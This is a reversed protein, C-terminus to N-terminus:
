YIDNVEQTIIEGGMSKWQAVFEDFYDLPKEGTIIQIFAGKQLSDLQSWVDGMSPTSDVIVEDVVENKADQTLNGALYHGYYGVIGNPITIDKKTNFQFASEIYDKDGSNFADYTPATGSKIYNNISEVFIPIRRYNNAIRGTGFPSTTRGLSNADKAAKFIAVDDPNNDYAGNIADFEVNMAKIAAEPNKAKASVCVAGGIGPDLPNNHVYKGDKNLPALVPVWEAGPNKAVMDAFIWPEWWGAFLLGIQNNNVMATVDDVSRLTMFSRDIIGDKYWKALVGLAEKTEPAISGYGIQGSADKLWTNPFSGLANAVTTLSYYSNSRNLPALPDIAMGIPNGSGGPDKAVFQKAVNEIDEVTQPVSLNLKQLWDNRVWLLNENDIDSPATIGYLKGDSYCSAMYSKPDVPALVEKALGGLCKSYADTLDALAGNAILSRFTIAANANGNIDYVQFVDPLDGSAIGLSLKQSYQDATTEWTIEFKVNLKKEILKLMGNDSSTEDAAFPQGKNEMRGVTLTVTEPYPAFPSMIDPEAAASETAPATSADTPSAAPSATPSASTGQSGCGTLMLALSLMIALAMSFLRLKIKM